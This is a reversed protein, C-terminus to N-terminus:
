LEPIAPLDPVLSPDLMQVAYYGVGLSGCGLALLAVLLFSWLCGRRRCGSRRRPADAAGAVEPAGPGATAGGIVGPDVHNTVTWNTRARSPHPETRRQGGALVDVLTAEADDLGIGLWSGPGFQLDHITRTLTIEGAYRGQTLEFVMVSKGAVTAAIHGDFSVALRGLLGRVPLRNVVTRADGQVLCLTTGATAVWQGLVNSWGVGGISGGLSTSGWAARSHLDIATFDGRNTGVGLSQGDPGFSLASAGPLDLWFPQGGEPIVVIGGQAIIALAGDSSVALRRAGDRTTVTELPAGDHRSWWQVRGSADCTVVEDGIFAIGVLVGNILERWTPAGDGRYVLLEPGDGCAVGDGDPAMALPCPTTM